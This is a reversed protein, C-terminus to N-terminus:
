QAVNSGGERSVVVWEGSGSVADHWHLICAQGRTFVLKKPHQLFQYLGAVAGRWHEDSLRMLMENDQWLVLCGHRRSLEDAFWSLARVRVSRLLSLHRPLPGPADPAVLDAKTLLLSSLVGAELEQQRFLLARYSFGAWIAAILAGLHWLFNTLEM